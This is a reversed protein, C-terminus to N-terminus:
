AAETWEGRKKGSGSLRPRGHWGATGPNYYGYACALGAGTTSGLAGFRWPARVGASGTRYFASKFYTTSSGGFVEPMLVGLTNSVFRKIWNWTSAPVNVKIGTSEYNETISGALNESDRCQFVEYDFSGDDNESATVNWLPDLGIAYAGDLVEVGAVRLPTKGSTLSIPCGDKHDPLKETEGSYWPATSVYGTAPIDVGEELDLNLAGYTTGDIEVTDIALIRVNDCVDWNAATNRDTNTGEPHTGLMVSSGVLFNAAQAETLLVRKTDEEELAVVYQYNYNTCGEAIGSNELDWHRLQWMDLLWESDCDCWLGEYLSTIRAKTLGTNASARNYPAKGAGSTLGGSSSLGGGFSPHWTMIRKTGDPAVDGAYPRFGGARTTRWSKYNYEGDNSTHIWLALSFTYVPALEGSIDFANDIGEIAIVNMTGDQLSLANARVYWTMPDEDAWDQVAVTAETCLQAPAAMAALDDMPTMETAGSVADDYYRLTYTKHQGTHALMSFFRELIDYRNEGQVMAAVARPAWSEFVSTTNSGDLISQFIADYAAHDAADTLEEAIRELGRELIQNTRQLTEDLAIPKTVEEYTVPM